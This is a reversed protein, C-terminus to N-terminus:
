RHVPIKFAARMPGDFIAIYTGPPLGALQFPESLSDMVQLWNHKLERGNIDFLRLQYRGNVLGGVRWLDTGLWQLVPPPTDGSHHDSVSTLVETCFAAIFGDVANFPPTGHFVEEYWAGGGPDFLPFYSDLPAYQKNTYGAAYLTSSRWALTSITELPSGYDHGGFYTSWARWHDPTFCMIFGDTAYQPFPSATNPAPQYYLGPMEVPELQLGSITGGVFLNGLDDFILCDVRMPGGVSVPLYTTWIRSRDTGDFRVLFQPTSGGSPDDLYWGPGPVVDLNEGGSAGIVLDGSANLRVAQSSHIYEADETGFYTGWALIGDLDFETIFLDLGGGSDEQDDSSGPEIPAFDTSGTNGVVFVRQGVTRAAWAIDLSSGGLCTTWRLDDGADFAAVFGDFAGAYAQVHAGIPQGGTPQPVEEGIQGAILLRGETDIAASHVGANGFYTAWVLSGNQAFRAIFGNNFGPTFDM